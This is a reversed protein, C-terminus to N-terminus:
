LFVGIGSDRKLYLQLGSTQLKILFSVRAGTSEQSNRSIKLFVKKLLVDGTAGKLNEKMLTTM